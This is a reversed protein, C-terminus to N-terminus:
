LGDMSYQIDDAANTANVGLSKLEFILDDVLTYSLTRGWPDTINLPNGDPGTLNEGNFYTESPYKGYEARYDELVNAVEQLGARAQSEASKRNAVGAVGVVIGILIGIIAITVLLEILTFGPSTKRSTSKM